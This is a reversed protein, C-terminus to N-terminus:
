IHPAIRVAQWQRLGADAAWRKGWCPMRKGDATPTWSYCNDCVKRPIGGTAPIIYTVGSEPTGIAYVVMSGDLSIKPNMEDAPTRVLPTEKGTPLDKIWVDWNGLRNSNFAMRTGDGSISPRIDSAVDSTLRQLAGLVKARNTDMPVSWIDGNETLSSFVLRLKHSDPGMYVVSPDGEIGTGSTLRQAEGIVQFTHPDIAIQWVNRSDGRSAAFVIHGETWVGPVPLSTLLDRTQPALGQRRLAEVVGTKVRNGSRPFRGM